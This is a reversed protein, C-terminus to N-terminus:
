RTPLHSAGRHCVGFSGYVKIVDDDDDRTTTTTTAIWDRPDDERGM